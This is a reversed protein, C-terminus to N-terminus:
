VPLAHGHANLIAVVEARSRGAANGHRRVTKETETKYPRGPHPKAKSGKSGATAVQMDLDFLDMLILAERSVPHDWGALAAAIASSPDYRLIAVLRAM